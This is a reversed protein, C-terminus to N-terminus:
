SCPLRKLMVPVRRGVQRFGFGQYLRQSSQNRWQTNLTMIRAGAAAAFDLADALLYRGLGMGQHLPDVGVRVLQARSGLVDTCAYGVLEGESELVVLRATTMLLQILETETFQWPWSFARRDLEALQQIEHLAPSRLVIYPIRHQALLPRHPAAREFNVIYDVVEFGQRQLPPTLWREAALHMLACVGDQALAEELPRLLRTLGKEVSWGNILGLGRIQALGPQRLSACIFGWLLPGTDAVFCYDREIMCVLDEYGYRVCTHRAHHQLHQIRGVDGSLAPKVQVQIDPM